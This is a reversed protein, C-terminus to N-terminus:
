HEERCKKKKSNGLICSVWPDCHGQGSKSSYKGTACDDCVGGSVSYKGAPCIDCSGDATNEYGAPCLCTGGSM